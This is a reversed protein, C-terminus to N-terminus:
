SETSCNFFTEIAGIRPLKAAEGIPTQVVNRPTPRTEALSVGTVGDALVLACLGVTVSHRVLKVPPPPM